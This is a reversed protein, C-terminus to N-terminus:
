YTGIAFWTQPGSVAGNSYLTFTNVATPGSNSVGFSNSGSALVLSNYIKYSTNSFSEPLIVSANSGTSISGTVGFQIMLNIPTFKIWVGAASSGTTILNSVTTALNSIVITLNKILTSQGNIQDQLGSIRNDIYANTGNIKSLLDLVAKNIDTKGPDDPVQITAPYQNSM